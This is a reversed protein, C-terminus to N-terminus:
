FSALEAAAVDAEDVRIDAITINVRVVNLGCINEIAKRTEERVNRIITQMPEGYSVTLTIDVAVRDGGTLVDIGRRSANGTIASTLNKTFSSDSVSVVGNVRGAATRVVKAIVASEIKSQEDSNQAATAQPDTRKTEDSAPM